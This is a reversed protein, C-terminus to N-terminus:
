SGTNKTERHFNLTVQSEANFKEDIEDQLKALEEPHKALIYSCYTLANSTTDYGAVLFTM